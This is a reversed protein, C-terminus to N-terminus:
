LVRYILDVTHMYQIKKLVYLIISCTKIYNADRSDVRFGYVSKGASLLCKEAFVSFGFAIRKSVYFAIDAYRNRQSREARPASSESM